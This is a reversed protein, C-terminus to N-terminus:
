DDDGKTSSDTTEYNRRQPYFFCRKHFWMKRKFFLFRYTLTLDVSFVITGQPTRTRTSTGHVTAKADNSALGEVRNRLSKDGQGGQGVLQKLTTGPPLADRMNCGPAKRIRISQASKYGQYSPQLYYTGWQSFDSRRVIRITAKYPYTQFPALRAAKQIHRHVTQRSVKEYQITDMVHEILAADVTRSFMASRMSFFGYVGVALVLLLLLWGIIKGGSGSSPEPVPSHIRSAHRM